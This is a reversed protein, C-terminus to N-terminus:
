KIVIDQFCQSVIQGMKHAGATNFHCDDYFNEYTPTLKDAADCLYHGHRRAFEKLYENYLSTIHIMSEFDLTYNQNPPTQWFGNKFTESASRQYGTPQTIFGCKINYQECVISIKEMTKAYDERVRQPKFSHKTKRDLSGRRHMYREGFDDRVRQRKNTSSATLARYFQLIADGLLTNSLQFKHRYSGILTRLGQRSWLGPSFHDRIHRNWDNIGVLFIAADPHLRVINRLTALHNDARLGSVGTNVVEVNIANNQELSQQLFNTWTNRDDIYIEETTSGGIAFIRFSDNGTYDVNKTTRFGKFDTTILQPGHIGPFGGKVDVVKRFNPTLTKFDDNGLLPPLLAQLVLFMSGWFAWILRNESPYVIAVLPLGFLALQLAIWKTSEFNTTFVGFIAAAIIALKVIRLHTCM